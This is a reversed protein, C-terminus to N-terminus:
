RHTSNITYCVCVRMCACGSMCKQLISRVCTSQPPQLCFWSVSGEVLLVKKYRERQPLTLNASPCWPEQLRQIWPWIDMCFSDPPPRLFSKMIWLGLHKAWQMWHTQTFSSFFVEHVAGTQDLKLRTCCGQAATSISYQKLWNQAHAHTHTM